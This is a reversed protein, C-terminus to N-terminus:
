SHAVDIKYKSHTEQQPDFIHGRTAVESSSVYVYVLGENVGEVLTPGRASEDTENDAPFADLSGNVTADDIGARHTCHAYPRM